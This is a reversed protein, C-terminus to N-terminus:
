KKQFRVTVALRLFNEEFVIKLHYVKAFNQM